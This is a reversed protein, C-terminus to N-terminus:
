ASSRIESGYARFSPWARPRKVAGVMESAFIVKEM